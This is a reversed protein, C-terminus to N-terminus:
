LFITALGLFALFGFIDTATTVFISSAVAPDIRMAQLIFPILAGFLGAIFLNIVMSVGLLLGIVPPAHFLLAIIGALVGVILGNITGAIAERIVVGRAQHWDLEHVALGRVVVALSQTAANGGEGAVIPMFVALITVRAITSEFMKVFSAALFATALNIILWKYRKSVKVGVSGLATEEPNLGAFKFIDETAEVQSVKLLDRLHIIGVIRKNEDVVGVVDGHEHMVRSVIQEQDAHVSVVPLTMMLSTVSHTPSTLILRKYPLYGLLELKENVVIVHPASKKEAIHRQVKEAVDKLSFDPKILIFNLDMLGGATDKGYKLLKEIQKRKSEILLSLVQARTDKSLIQVVDTADDEDNFHLFRAIQYASLNQFIELKATRTLLLVVEAQIEPPLLAFAKARGIHLNNVVRAIIHFDQKLMLGKAKKPENSQIYESVKETLTRKM